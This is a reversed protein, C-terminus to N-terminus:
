EIYVTGLVNNKCTEWFDVEFKKSLDYRVNHVYKELPPDHMKTITVFESQHPSCTFDCFLYKFSQMCAPCRWFTLDVRSLEKKLTDVQNKSCCFNTENNFHPCFKSLIDIYEQDLQSIYVYFTFCICVKQYSTNPVVMYTKYTENYRDTAVMTCTGSVYSIFCLVLALVLYKNSM